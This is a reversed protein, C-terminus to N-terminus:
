QGAAVREAFLAGHLDALMSEMRTVRDSLASLTTKMEDLGGLRADVRLLRSIPSTEPAPRPARAPSNADKVSQMALVRREFSQEKGKNLFYLRNRKASGEIRLVHEKKELRLLRNAIRTAEPRDQKSTSIGLHERLQTATIGGHKRCLELIARDVDMQELPVKM